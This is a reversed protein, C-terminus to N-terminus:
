RQVSFTVTEPTRSSAVTVAAGFTTASVTLTQNGSIAKSTAAPFGVVEIRVSTWWPHLTGEAKALSVTV